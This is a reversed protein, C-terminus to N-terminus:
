ISFLGGGTPSSRWKNNNNNNNINWETAVGQRITDLAQQELVQRFYKALVRCNQSNSPRWGIVFYSISTCWVAVVNCWTDCVLRLSLSTFQMDIGFSDLWGHCGACYMSHEHTNGPMMCNSSRLGLWLIGLHNFSSANWALRSSRSTVSTFDTWDVLKDFSGVEQHRGSAKQAETARISTTTTISCGTLCALFRGASVGRNETSLPNGYSLIQLLMSNNTSLHLVNMFRKPNKHEDDPLHTIILLVLENPPQVQNLPTPANKDNYLDKDTDGISFFTLWNM